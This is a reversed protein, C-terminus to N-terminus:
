SKFDFIDENETEKLLLFFKSLMFAVGAAGSYFSNDIMSANQNLYYNNNQFNVKYLKLIRLLPIIQETSINLDNHRLVHILMLISGSIGTGLSHNLLNNRILKNIIKTLYIAYQPCSKSVLFSSIAIGLGSLGLLGDNTYNEQSDSVLLELPSTEAQVLIYDILQQAANLYLEEKSTKHLESLFYAIGSLGNFFGYEEFSTCLNKYNKKFILDSIELGIELTLPNLNQFKLLILGLGALGNRISYKGKLSSYVFNIEEEELCYDSNFEAKIYLSDITGYLTDSFFFKNNDQLVYNIEKISLAVGLKGKLFDNSERSILFNSKETYYEKELIERLDKLENEINKIVNKKDITNSGEFYTQENIEKLNEIIELISINESDFILNELTMKIENSMLNNEYCFSITEKVKDKDLSFLSDTHIFYDLLVIGISELDMKFRNQLNDYTNYRCEHTGMLLLAENKCIDSNGLEFDIFKVNGSDDILINDLSIDGVTINHTHLKSLSLLIKEFLDLAQNQIIKKSKENSPQLDKFITRLTTGKIEEVSIFYHEWEFFADYVVPVVFIKKEHAENLISYEMKRLDVADMGNSLSVTGPRAEKLIVMKQLINDFAKYVGGSNSITIVEKIAYRGKKLGSVNNEELKEPFPNHIWSPQQYYPQPEDIFYLNNPGKFIAEGKSNKPTNETIAMRGFRYYLVKCNKYRKDSLIFPGEYDKFLCYLDEIIKQFDQTTKPYITIFKGSGARNFNKALNKTLLASDKLFKFSIKYEECYKSVEELISKANNLTASIHIKWGFEPIKNDISNKYYAQFFYDTEKLFIPNKKVSDYYETNIIYQHIDYDIKLFNITKEKIM